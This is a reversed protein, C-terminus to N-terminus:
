KLIEKQLYTADAISFNRDNNIDYFTDVNIYKRTKPQIGALIKQYLTVDKITLVNDFDADGTLSMKAYETFSKNNDIWEEIDIKDKRLATELPMVEETEVNVALYQFSSPEYISDFEFTYGKINMTNIMPACFPLMTYVTCFGNYTIESPSNIQPPFSSLISESYNDSYYKNVLRIVEDNNVTKSTIYQESVSDNGNTAASVSLMTLSTCVMSVAIIVSAIKHNRKTKM